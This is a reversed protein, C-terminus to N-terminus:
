PEIALQIPAGTGFIVMLRTKGAGNDECYIKAKNDGPNSQAPVDNFEITSDSIFLERGFSRLHYGTVTSDGMWIGNDTYNSILLQDTENNSHKTYIGKSNPIHVTGDEMVKFRYSAGGPAMVALAPTSQGTAPWCEVSTGITPSSDSRRRGFQVKGTPNFIHNGGVNNFYLDSSAAGHNIQVYGNQFSLQLSAAGAANNGIVLAGSQYIPFILYKPFGTGSRSFVIGNGFTNEDVGDITQPKTFVNAADLMAVGTLAPISVSGDTNVEIATTGNQAVVKIKGGVTGVKIIADTGNHLISLRGEDTVGINIIPYPNATFVIQNDGQHQIIFQPVTPDDIATWRIGQSWRMAIGDRIVWLKDEGNISFGFTTQAGYQDTFHIGSDTDGARVLSPATKTGDNLTLVQRVLVNDSDIDECVFDNVATNGLVHLNGPTDLNPAFLISNITDYNLGAVGAFVGSSNFQVSGEPGSASAGSGGAIVVLIVGQNNLLAEGNSKWIVPIEVHDTKDVVVGTTQFSAFLTSDNRDQVYLIAGTDIGLLPVKADIGDTTLNRVWIFTTATYPPAANFRIQNSTPPPTIVSSFDYNLRTNSGTPPAAFTRDARLFLDTGGPFGVLKTLNVLDNGAVGIEHTEHHPGGSGSGSGSGSGKALVKATVVTNPVTTRLFTASVDASNDELTVNAWNVGDQSIQVSNTATLNTARAPLAYIQNAVLEQPPGILLLTNPM